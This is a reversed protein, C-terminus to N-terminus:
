ALEMRQLYIDRDHRRVLETAEVMIQCLHGAQDVTAKDIMSM